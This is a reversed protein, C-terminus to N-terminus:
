ITCQLKAQLTEIESIRKSHLEIFKSENRKSENSIRQKKRRKLQHLSALLLEKEENSLEVKMIILLNSIFM